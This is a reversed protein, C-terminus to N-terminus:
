ASECPEGENMCPRDSSAGAGKILIVLLALAGTAAAIALATKGSSLQRARIDQLNTLPMWVEERAGASNTFGLLSDGYVRPHEIIMREGDTTTVWIRKPTHSQFYAAPNPGVPRPATACALQTMLLVCVLQYSTGRRM